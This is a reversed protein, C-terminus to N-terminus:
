MEEYGSKIILTMFKLKTIAQIYEMQHAPIIFSEGAEICFTNAGLYIIANGELVQIYKDFAIQNPASTKGSDFSLLSLKGTSKSFITAMGTSEPFYDILETTKYVFAKRIKEELM